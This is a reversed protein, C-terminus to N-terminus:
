PQPALYPSAIPPQRKQFVLSQYLAVAVDARTASRQADLRDRVPYYTVLTSQSAAAIKPKAWAPLAPGDSYRQLEQRLTAPDRVALNLGSALTIYLELRSIPRDPQFQGNPYGRMLGLQVSRDVAEKAWHEARLDQFPLPSQVASGQWADRLIAALQARTVLTDPQFSGDAFGAVVKGQRLPEIFPYAWHQASVDKFPPAVTESTPQSASDIPLLAPPVPVLARARDPGAPNAVSPQTVASPMPTPTAVLPAPSAPAIPQVSPKTSPEPSKGASASPSRQGALGASQGAQALWDWASRGQGKGVFWAFLGGFMLLAVLVAIWEDNTERPSRSRGDPLQSM